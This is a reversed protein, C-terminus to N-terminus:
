LNTGGPGRRVPCNRHPLADHQLTFTTLKLRVLVVRKKQVVSAMITSGTAEHIYKDAIFLYDPSHIGFLILEIFNFSVVKSSM